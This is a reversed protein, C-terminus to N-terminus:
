RALRGRIAVPQRGADLEVTLDADIGGDLMSRTLREFPQIVVAMDARRGAPLRDVGLMEAEQECRWDLVTEFAPARLFVLADLRAFAEAYPGALAADVTRRWVGDPDRERELANVPADLDASRQPRAGLCWGDLLIAAPRGRFRPWDTEPAREDGLKDFRPLPTVADATARRVRDLTDRLLLLDHTGPPGRTAFLPHVERALAQREARTLYVDDLSLVACGFRDAAARALTSKGSGQAGAVGLIPPPGDPDAAAVWRGILTLLGPDVRTM